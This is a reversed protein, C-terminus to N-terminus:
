VYWNMIARNVKRVARYAIHAKELDEKLKNNELKLKKNEEELNRIDEFLEAVYSETSRWSLSVAQLTDLAEQILESKEKKM